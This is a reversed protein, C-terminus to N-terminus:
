PRSFWHRENCDLHFSNLVRTFVAEFRQLSDARCELELRFIKESDRQTVVAVEDIWPRADQPDFYRNRMLVGSVDHLTIARTELVEVDRAREFKQLSEIHLKLYDELPVVGDRVVSVDIEGIPLSFKKVGTEVYMGDGEFAAARVWHAPYEVCFGSKANSYTKWSSDLNRFSAASICYASALLALLCRAPHSAM